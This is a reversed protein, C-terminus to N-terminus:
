LSSTYRGSSITHKYNNHLYTVSVNGFLIIYLKICNIHALKTENVVITSCIKSIHDIQRTELGYNCMGAQQILFNNIIILGNVIIDMM